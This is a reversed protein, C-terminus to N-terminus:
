AFHKRINDVFYKVNDTPTEKIIGHGLGCVWGTTDLDKLEDLWNHFHPKFEDHPLVILKEDFNGQVFGKNFVSLTQTLDHTSDIGVGAWNFNSVNTMAKHSIGRAYYGVGSVDALSKLMPAYTEKFYSSKINSLGSDLIIVSEAGAKKQEKISLRLLPIIIKEIYTTRFDLSVKNNGVAYNLLSWPGGVFGILSKDKPLLDRTASLAQNQFQLHGIAKSVDTYKIWNDENLHTTFKPGPAFEIPLGLGELHWLIDSFMIAIDFDFENIPLMAVQAAVEPIKCMQEFNYQEKIKMYSPQYRGAQRMMWIPPCKQEIRNIANNFKINNVIISWTMQM